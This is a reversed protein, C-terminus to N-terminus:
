DGDLVKIKNIVKDNYFQIIIKEYMLLGSSSESYWYNIKISDPNVNDISKYIPQGLLIDVKEKEDGIKINKFTNINFNESYKTGVSPFVKPAFYLFSYVLGVVFILVTIFRSKNRM